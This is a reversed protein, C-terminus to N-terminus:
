RPGGSVVWRGEARAADEVLDAGYRSRAAEPTVYENDLDSQLQETSRKLPDGYGGGGACKLFLEDGAGIPL